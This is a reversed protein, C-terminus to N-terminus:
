ESLSALPFISVSSIVYGYVRVQNTFILLIKRKERVPPSEVLFISVAVPYIREPNKDPFISTRFIM